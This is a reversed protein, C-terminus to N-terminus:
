KQNQDEYPTMSNIIAETWLIQNEDFSLGKIVVLEPIMSILDTVMGMQRM